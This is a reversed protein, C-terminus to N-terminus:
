PLASSRSSDHVQHSAVKEHQHADVFWLWQDISRSVETLVRSGGADGLAHLQDSGIRHRGPLLFEDRGGHHPSSERVTPRTTAM